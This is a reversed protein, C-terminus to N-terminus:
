RHPRSWRWSASWNCCTTRCWTACAGAEDYFGGRSGVGVTEAVTIQVSRVFPTRWLPEFISNGFRLAMLNQVTEKGLYHDIRYTRDESFYRSVVEGIGIASALDVGLPKELVLRTDDAILGHSALNDCTAAFLGPPMAMYYIRQAEARLQAALAPYDGPQAADLHVFDLRQLFSQWKAPEVYRADVFPKASEDAFNVFAERDWRHRGVGIIRTGDPLNGDRHCMYLSPLLKRASLDGAGGFIVLDLPRTGASGASSASRTTQM